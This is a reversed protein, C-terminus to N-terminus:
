SAPARQELKSVRRDLQAYSSLNQTKVEQFERAVEIRFADVKQNVSTVGEAVLQITGRLDEVKIDTYRIAEENARIAKEAGRIREDVQDFRRTTEERLDQIQQAAERFRTDLYAILEQDM